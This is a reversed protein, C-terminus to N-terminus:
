KNVVELFKFYDFRPNEASFLECFAGALEEVTEASARDKFGNLLKAVALYDKRTM